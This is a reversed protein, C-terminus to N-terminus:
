KGAKVPLESSGKVGQWADLLEHFSTNRLRLRPLPGLIRPAALGAFVVNAVEETTCSAPACFSNRLIGPLASGESFVVQFRHVHATQSSFTM